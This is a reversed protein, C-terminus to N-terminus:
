GVGNGPRRRRRTQHGLSIGLKSARKRLAGATRGTALMIQRIPVRADSLLRLLQEEADTFPKLM